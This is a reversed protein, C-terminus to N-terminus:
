AKEDCMELMRIRANEVRFDDLNLGEVLSYGLELSKQYSSLAEQPRELNKLVYGHWGYVEIELTMMDINYSFLSSLPSRSDHIREIRKRLQSM